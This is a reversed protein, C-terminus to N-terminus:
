RQTDEWGSLTIKQTVSAGPSSIDGSVAQGVKGPINIAGNFQVSQGAPVGVGIQALVTGTIASARISINASAAAAGLVNNVSYTLTDVNLRGLPNASRSTCVATTGAAPNNTTSWREHLNEYLLQDAKKSM